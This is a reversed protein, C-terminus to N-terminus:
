LHFPIYLLTTESQWSELKVGVVCIYSRVTRYSVLETPKDQTEAELWLLSCHFHQYPQARPSLRNWPENLNNVSNLEMSSHSLNRKSEPEQSPKCSKSAMLMGQSVSGEMKLALLLPNMSWIDGAEEEVVDRQSASQSKQGGRKLKFAQAIPCVQIIEKNLALQNAVEIKDIFDSKVNVPM